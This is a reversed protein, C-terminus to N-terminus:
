TGIFAERRGGIGGNRMVPGTRFDGCAETDNEHENGGFVRRPPHTERCTSKIPSVFLKTHLWSRVTKLV